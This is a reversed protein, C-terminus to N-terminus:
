PASSPRWGSGGTFEIGVDFKGKVFNCYRVSGRGCLGLRPENCSIYTRIPIKVELRLKLGSPSVDVVQARSIMERGDSNEWLIRLNGQLPHRSERRLDGKRLLNSAM